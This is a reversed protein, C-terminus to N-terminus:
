LKTIFREDFIYCELREFSWPALEDSELLACVQNYFNKSRINIKEKTIAFHGGPMFEYFTPRDTEFLLDWYKNVNIEPYLHQPHGNGQCSLISGNFHSSPTLQWATGFKNNHYGFYGNISLAATKNLNNPNDNVIEIINGWHDFPFDQCFFTYDSLNDYNKVIHTFFTHVCRGNNPLLIEDFNSKINSNKRYITKKVSSEIFDLWDLPKDYASVVLEKKM